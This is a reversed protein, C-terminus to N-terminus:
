GFSKNTVVCYPINYQVAILISLRHRITIARRSRSFRLRAASMSRLYTNVTSMMIRKKKKTVYMYM